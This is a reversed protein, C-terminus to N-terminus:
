SPQGAVPAKRRPVALLLNDHPDIDIDRPEDRTVFRFEDHAATLKGKDLVNGSPTVVQLEIPMVYPLKSQQDLTIITEWEGNGVSHTSWDYVLEITGTRNLWQDFFWGLKQGSRKEAEAKFEEITGIGYEHRSLFGKLTAYFADDGIVFRLMHLVYAGKSYVVGMYSGQQDFPDTDIIAEEPPNQNLFHYQQKADWLARRFAKEGATHEIYMISSYEAFAEALWGAGPGQPVVLNGWWQHAIEHAVVADFLKRVYGGKEFLVEGLMVISTPSYGGPFFPIEVIALKDYPYQGYLREYLELSRKAIALVHEARGAHKRWLLVSIPVNGAKGELREWPGAALAVGMANQPCEWEYTTADGDTRQSKLRGPGVAFQGNPVTIRETVPSRFELYGIAPCWRSEPRLYSGEADIVDGGPLIREKGFGDYRAFVEADRRSSLPDAPTVTVWEGERKAQAPKADVTIAKIDCAPSFAIEFARLKGRKARVGFRADATLSHKEPHLTVDIAYRTIRVQSERRQPHSGSSAPTGPPGGGSGGGSPAATGTGQAARQQAERRAEAVKGLEEKPAKSKPDLREARRFEREAEDPKGQQMLERGHEVAQKATSKRQVILANYGGLALAICAVVLLLAVRWGRGRDSPRALLRVVWGIAVVAVIAFIFTLAPM